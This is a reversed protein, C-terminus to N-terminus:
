VPEGKSSKRIVDDFDGVFNEPNRITITKGGQKFTYGPKESEEQCRKVLEEAKTKTFPITYEDKTSIVMTKDELLRGNMKYKRYTPIKKIGVPTDHGSIICTIWQKGFEKIRSLRLLKEPEEDELPNVAEPKGKSIWQKFRPQLEKIEDETLKNIKTDSRLMGVAQAFVVFEDFDADTKSKPQESNHQEDAAKQNAEVIESYKKMFKGLAETDGPEIKTAEELLQESQEKTFNNEELRGKLEKLFNKHAKEDQAAQNGSGQNKSM